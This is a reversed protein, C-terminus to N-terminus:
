LKTIKASTIDLPLDKYQGEESRYKCTIFEKTRKPQYADIIINIADILEPDGDADIKKKLSMVRGAKLNGKADVELKEMLLEYFFKSEETKVKAALLDNMKQLGAGVTDDWGDNLRWGISISKGESSTFTHTQQDLERGFVECKLSVLTQLDNFVESKVKSMFESLAELKKFSVPIIEDVLKKYAARDEKVKDAKANEEAQMQQFLAQKQEPTLNDISIPTM